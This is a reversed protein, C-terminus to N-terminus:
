HPWDPGAVGDRGLHKFSAPLGDMGRSGAPVQTAFTTHDPGTGIGVGFVTGNVRTGGHDSTGVPDATPRSSLSLLTRLLQTSTWM